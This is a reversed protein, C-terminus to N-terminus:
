GKQEGAADKLFVLARAIRRRLTVAAGGHWAVEAADAFALEDDAETLERIVEALAEPTM